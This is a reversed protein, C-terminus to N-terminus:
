DFVIYFDYWCVKGINKKCMANALTYKKGFTDKVM